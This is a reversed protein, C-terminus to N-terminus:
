KAPSGMLVFPRAAEQKAIGVEEKGRLLERSLDPDPTRLQSLYCRDTFCDFVVQGTDGGKRRIPNSLVMAVRNGRSDWLVVSDRVSSITYEGAPLLRNAVLFDFPVKVKIGGVQGYTLFGLLFFCGLAMQFKTKMILEKKM